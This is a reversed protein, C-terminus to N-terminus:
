GTFSLVTRDHVPRYGLRQYLANSTPNALDTFLVVDVAGADLAAQSVAATVAGAYGRRRLEAPTYVPAIRVMDALRRSCGALSVPVGYVEWLTLGGYGIRDDVVDSVNDSPEGVEEGFAGLWAVLLDRDSPEAVRAQGAVVPEPPVLGGLAYLRSRRSVEASAGTLQRWQASFAEAVSRAANIGSLPRHEAALTQALSAVAEPSSATLLMPHPPTQLLAAGVAGDSRWWGFQPDGDGFARRGRIKLSETITLLLTNEAPRARLFAGAASAFDDLDDTLFWTM